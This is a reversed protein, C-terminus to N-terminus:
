LNRVAGAGAAAGLKTLQVSGVHARPARGTHFADRPERIPVCGGSEIVDARAGDRRSGSNTFPNWGCVVALATTAERKPERISREQPAFAPERSQPAQHAAPRRDRALVYGSLGPPACPWENM